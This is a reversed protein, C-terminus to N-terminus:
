KLRELIIKPVNVEVEKGGELPNDFTHFVTDWGYIGDFFELFTKVEIVKLVEEDSILDKLVKSFLDRITFTYSQSLINMEIVISYKNLKKVISYLDKTLLKKKINKKAIKLLKDKLFLKLQIILNNENKSADEIYITKEGNMTFVEFNDFIFDEIEKTGEFTYSIKIKNKNVM